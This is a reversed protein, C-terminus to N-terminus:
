YKVRVDGVRRTLKREDLYELFALAYKRSTGFHDRLSAVTVEGVTDLTYMTWEVLKHFAAADFLVEPSVRVLHGSEILYGILEAGLSEWDAKAPPAFPEARFDRLLADVHRQQAQSLRPTWDHLRVLTETMAITGAQEARRIVEDFVRASSLGLKSKLEERPMGLRLAWKRHYSSLTATITELLKTWGARAILWSTAHPQQESSLLLAQDSTRLEALAARATTEDLGSQRVLAAWEIPATGLTQLLIEAPTGRSRTELGAIVESRFRRHRPPHADVIRGGGVTLSPSPIRLICRDGGAVAIPHELRVQVWGEGGPPIREADLLTVRCPVEAAGVFLDLPDNQEIPGPAAAVLRLKLDILTTPQIHGPLTLVAGRQVEDVGISTLNVAVRTGPLATEEKAGHTQLGRVRGRRGQPQIEIEQGVALPGDALTGTVVTGFGGITFVRDIPLRPTGRAVTRSPTQELVRDIARKLDDLGAGTRASVAIMEANALVTGALRARVDECVLDLWDADVLDAKTLVVLGHEVGLLDLINLHEATQPMVGEDAAVILLVADIGGVGALMNKIFREHGPVDVISVQKGSPLRLHAFGLDITMERRREEELRDPNIGTLAYVLTSKGHDVHGSTGIVYM